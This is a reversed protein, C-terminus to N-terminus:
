AIECFFVYFSHEWPRAPVTRPSKRLLESRPPGFTNHRPAKRAIVKRRTRLGESKPRALSLPKAKPPRAFHQHQALTLKALKRYLTFVGLNRNTRHQLTQGMSTRTFHFGSVGNRFRAQHRPNLTGSWYKKPLERAQPSFRIPFYSGRPETPQFWSAAAAALVQCRARSKVNGM